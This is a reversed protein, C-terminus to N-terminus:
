EPSTLLQKWAANNQFGERLIEAEITERDDLVPQRLPFAACEIFRMYRSLPATANFTLTAIPYGANRLAKFAAAEPHQEGKRQVMLFVRDKDYNRLNPKEGTVVTLTDFERRTWLAAHSWAEPLLLTLKDRSNAKLFAALQLAEAIEKENLDAGEIWAKLNKNALTLRYLIARTEDVSIFNATRDIGFKAYVGALKETAFNHGIVLTAPLLKAIPEHARRQMDDVIAKLKEPDASDLTYSLPGGKVPGVPDLSTSIVFRIRTGHAAEIAARIAAVEAAIVETSEAPRKPVELGEDTAAPVSGNLISLLM